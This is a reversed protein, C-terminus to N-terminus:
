RSLLRLILTPHEPKDEAETPSEVAESLIL